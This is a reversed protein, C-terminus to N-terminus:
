TCVYSLWKHYLIHIGSFWHHHHSLPLLFGLWNLEFDESAKCFGAQYLVHHCQKSLHCHLNGEILHLRDYAVLLLRCCLLFAYWLM